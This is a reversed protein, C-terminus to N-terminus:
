SLIICISYLWILGLEALEEADCGGFLFLLHRMLKSVISRHLRLRLKFPQSAAITAKSLHQFSCVLVRKFFTVIILLYILSLFLTHLLEAFEVERAHREFVIDSLDFLTHAQFLLHLFDYIGKGFLLQLPVMSHVQTLSLDLHLM